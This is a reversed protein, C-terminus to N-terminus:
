RERLAMVESLAHYDNELEVLTPSQAEERNLKLFADTRDLSLM